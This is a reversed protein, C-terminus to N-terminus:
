PVLSEFEKVRARVVDLSSRWFEVSGFDIGFRQGLAKADALGTSSLLDDYGGKFREPDQQYQSYLGLGFLLGFTYPWNYYVPGYYHGKVAWMYPHLGDADLGDGYTQKQADIMLENFEEISLERKERGEYVGKEFIFRSHIDVVVQCADQLEGELIGLKESDAADALAANTIITQCFISATEALAMPTDSQMPTRDALNLNHYAHGLEHALTGVSDFSPEFNAMVRSEGKRLKMCFAGDRKGVRPEADIWNEDFARKALSSLRDSFTGFQDVIFTRAESYSWEKNTGGAGVPAFLDWFAMREKGLLRAKAHMYRRFDPFSEACATQMAELTARDINNGFLAPELSDPWGRRVNLVNGAGKVSNLAAALPVAVSEWGKIEAKFAAERVKPDPDHALGRVASMPLDVPGDPKDVTVMLRSTVNGHLRVWASAGSPSLEAALEEEGEPMQYKAARASKRISYAHDAAIASVEILKEVDLTGVWADFRKSLKTLLVLEGQLESAKAQALNNTSDTAIFSSIYAYLTRLRDTLENLSTVVKEFRSVTVDDISGTEQKRISYEDFLAGVAHIEEIIAKFDAEFGPSELSPYLVTMDWHPLAEKVSM